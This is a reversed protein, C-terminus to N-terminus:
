APSVPDWYQLRCSGWCPALSSRQCRQRSDGPLAPPPGATDLCLGHKPEGHALAPASLGPFSKIPQLGVQMTLTPGREGQAPCLQHGLVRLVLDLQEPQPVQLTNQGGTGRGTRQTSGFAM